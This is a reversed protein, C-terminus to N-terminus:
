DELKELDKLYAERLKEGSVNNEILFLMSECDLYECDLFEDYCVYLSGGFGVDAEFIKIAEDLILDFSKGGEDRALDFMIEGIKKVADYISYGQQALWDLQYLRYLQGRVEEKKM